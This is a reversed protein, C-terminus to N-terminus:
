IDSDPNSGSNGHLYPASGVKKKFQEIRLNPMKPETRSVFKQDKM